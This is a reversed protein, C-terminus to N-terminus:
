QLWRARGAAVAITIAMLGVFAFAAQLGLGHAIFGFVPPGILVGSYGMTAVSALATSGHRAAASFVFPFVAALGAGALAFGSITIATDLALVAVVLGAAALLAGLKVVRRAGFRDKLRDAFLRVGLMVASFAAFALPAVGETAHLQDRMYVGSWDTIAGEAIAVCFCILGLAVLPGRPLEFHKKGAAAAPPDLPLGQFSLWLPISLLAAVAGFHLNPSIAMGALASGLLAGGLSGVCYWAHLQSMVSRGEAKEVDAGVANIAVNFSTQSVGLGVMLIMLTAINPALPLGALVPLLSLGSYWAGRRPGFNGVLWAAMPFSAVAGIGGCLLVLGLQAPSLHLADRIAPIRAAWTAFVVGLMVFLTPAAARWRRGVPATTPTSLLTTM